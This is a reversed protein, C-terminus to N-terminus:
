NLRSSILKSFLSPVKINVRNPGFAFNLTKKNTSFLDAVPTIYLTNGEISGDATTYGVLAMTFPKNPNAVRTKSVYDIDTFCKQCPESFIKTSQDCLKAYLENGATAM